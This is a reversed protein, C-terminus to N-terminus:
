HSSEWAHKIHSISLKNVLLVDFRIDCNTYIPHHKIFLSATRCIRRIQKPSIAYNIIDKHSRYKIEFFILTRNKFAILDIEGVYTKYRHHLIQYM